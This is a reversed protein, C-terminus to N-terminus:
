FWVFMTNTMYSHTKKKHFRLKSSYLAQLLRRHQGARLSALCSWCLSLLGEREEGLDRDRGESGKRRERRERGRFCLPYKLTFCFWLASWFWFGIPSLLACMLSLGRPTLSLLALRLRLPLVPSPGWRVGSPLV